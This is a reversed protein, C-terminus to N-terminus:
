PKAKIRCVANEKVPAGPKLSQHYIWGSGDLEANLGCKSLLNLAERVSLGKLDPVVDYSIEAEADYSSIDAFVKEKLWDMASSVFPLQFGDKKHLSAVDLPQTRWSKRIADAPLLRQMVRKFVPAAVQSGYHGGRPDYVSIILLREPDDAPLFGVFSAVFRDWYYGGRELNPMQATGTKGAITVGEIKANQGTGNEVTQVLIDKLLRATQPEIVRRVERPPRSEHNGAADTQNIIIRPEMLIGDNAIAAYALAVQLMNTSIGQGMAINALDIPKWTDWPRLIGPPEGPFDIGAPTGFGFRMAYRYVEKAGVIDAVKAMGINSSKSIVEEFTLTDFEHVDRLLNHGIRYKGNECYISDYRNIADKELAAAATIIKLVSGPEIMDTIPRLKHNEQPGTEPRLPDFDPVSCMALIEGSKPNVLIGGAWEARYAALVELLEHHLVDQAVADLTLRVAGGDQPLAHSRLPDWFSVGRANRQHIEWGKKGRLLSDCHVELGAIGRGDVDTYGLLQSTARHFPYFRGTSKKLSLGGIELSSLREAQPPTLRWELYVFKSPTQLRNKYHTYPRGTFGALEQCLTNEHVIQGPHVGLTYLKPLDVALEFGNRDLISGRRSELPVKRTQQKRAKQSYKQGEIIQLQFLRVGLLLFFLIMLSTAVRLRWVRRAMTNPRVPKKAKKKTNKM